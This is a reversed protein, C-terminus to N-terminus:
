KKSSKIEMVQLPHEVVVSGDRLVSPGNAEYEAEM